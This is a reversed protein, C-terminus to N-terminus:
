ISEEEFGAVKLQVAYTKGCDHCEWNWHVESNSDKDPDELEATNRGGCHPCVCAEGQQKYEEQTLM